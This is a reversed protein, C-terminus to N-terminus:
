ESGEIVVDIAVLLEEIGIPKTLYDRVGLWQLQEVRSRTADATLVIVPITRLGPRAAMKALVETGDMDPLHLDLLVMDPKHEVALDIGVSGQVASIMTIDPRCRLIEEVLQVNDVTDEIYLLKIPRGYERTAAILSGSKADVTVAAPEAERLLVSFRSGVGPESEVEISGGMLEALGRSLSLGLGTGEIGAEAANLRDFPTFLRDIHEPAIGSGTDVVAIRVRADPGIDDFLRVEGSPRNYKIANSVLNILIQKLRQREAFVYRDQEPSEANLKIQASEALPTMLEVVDDFMERLSLPEVSIELKGAEMRSVDLVEDILSLLHAGARRIASVWNKRREDLETMSLLEGFGNIATLPTRLEHSVRSLFVDKAEGAARLQENSKGMEISRQLFEAQMRSKHFATKQAESGRFFETVDEVEHVIHRLRGDDTIPTNILSWWRQEWRGGAKGGSYLADYRQAAMADPQLTDIVRNLSTRLNGVGDANHDDPNDPFVDFINRGAVEERTIHTLSLYSNTATLITLDPRLVLYNGPLAEFMRRYDLDTLSSAVDASSRDNIPSISRM